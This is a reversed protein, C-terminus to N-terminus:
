NGDATSTFAGVEFGNTFLASEGAFTDPTTAAGFLFFSPKQFDYDQVAVISPQLSSSLTATMVHPATTSALANAPDIFPITAGSPDADLQEVRRIIGRLQSLFPEDAFAVITDEGIVAHMDIAPDQARIELALEWLGAVEMRLDVREVIATPTALATTAGTRPFTVTVPLAM